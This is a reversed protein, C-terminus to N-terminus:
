LSSTEEQDDAVDEDEENLLPMVVTALENVQKETSNNKEKRLSKERVDGSVATCQLSVRFKKYLYERSSSIIQLEYLGTHESSINTITLSGTTKDLKLRDKFRENADDYTEVTGRSIQAILNDEDGFTWLIQDDRQIETDPNLTVSDRESLLKKEVKDKVTVIFAQDLVGSSSIIQLKYLGSHATRTNRITLSGTTEDLELRDKFIGGAVHAYTSIEGTERKFMAIGTLLKEDGFLWLILDDKNIEAAPKLTVSEGEM